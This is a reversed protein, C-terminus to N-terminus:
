GAPQPTSQPVAAVEDVSLDLMEIQPQPERTRLRSGTVTTYRSTFSYREVRIVGPDGAELKLPQYRRSQISAIVPKIWSGNFGKSSRLIEIDTTRGDPAVFFTLDVWQDEFNQTPMRMTVSGEATSRGSDEPLRIPDAFLLVPRTTAPGTRFEALMREVAGEDGWKEQYRARIVRAARVFPAHAPVSSGILADFAANADPRYSMETDGQTARLLALRLMAFGEVLPAGTRGADRIVGRYSQEAADYRRFRMHMDGVEIRAVLIRADDKPLGSKLTDVVDFAAVRYADGEGLHAAVRSNARFLNSVDIPYDRGHKRNRRAGALLTARADRYDGAVFQNEAHAVTAAVDEDPPCARALCDRLARETDGLSRGTVVVDASDQPADQQASAPVAVLAAAACSLAFGLKM